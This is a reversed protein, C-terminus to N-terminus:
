CITLKHWLYHINEPYHFMSWMVFFEFSCISYKMNWYATSSTSVKKSQTLFLGSAPSLPERLPRSHITPLPCGFWTVVSSYFLLPQILLYTQSPAAPYDSHSTSQPIINLSALNDLSPPSSQVLQSPLLYNYIFSFHRM